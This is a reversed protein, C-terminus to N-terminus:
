DPYTDFQPRDVMDEGLQMRKVVEVYGEDEAAAQQELEVAQDVSGTVYLLQALTDAVSPGSDLAYAARAITIAHELERRCLFLNWAAQNLNGPHPDQVTDFWKKYLDVALDYHGNDFAFEANSFLQDPPMEEGAMMELITAADDSRAQRLREAQETKPMEPLEHLLAMLAPAALPERIEPAEAEWDNRYAVKAGGYLWSHQRMSTEQLLPISPDPDLDPNAAQFAAVRSFVEPFDLRVMLGRHVLELLTFNGPDEDLRALRAAFTDGKKIRDITALFEDPPMFDDFRDLEVGDATLFLLTPYSTSRFRAFLERHAANKQPELKLAVM